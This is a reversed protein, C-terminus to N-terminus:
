SSDLSLWMNWLRWEPKAWWLRVICKSDIMQSDCIPVSVTVLIVPLLEVSSVKGFNQPKVCRAVCGHKMFLLDNGWSEWRPRISEPESQGLGARRSVARTTDTEGITYGWRTSGLLDWGYRYRAMQRFCPRAKCTVVSGVGSYDPCTLDRSGLKPLGPKWLVHFWM